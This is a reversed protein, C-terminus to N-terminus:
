SVVTVETRPAGAQVLSEKGNGASGDLAIVAEASAPRSGTSSGAGAASAAAARLEQEVQADGARMRQAYEELQFMPTASSGGLSSDMHEMNFLAAMSAAEAKDGKNVFHIKKATV